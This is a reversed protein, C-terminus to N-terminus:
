SLLCSSSIIVSGVCLRQFTSTLFEVASIDVVKGFIKICRSVVTFYMECHTWKTYEFSHGRAASATKRNQLRKLSSVLLV